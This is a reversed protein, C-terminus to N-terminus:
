GDLLAIKVRQSFKFTLDRCECHRSNEFVQNVMGGDQRCYVPQEFIVPKEYRQVWGRCGEPQDAIKKTKAVLAFRQGIQSPRKGRWPM